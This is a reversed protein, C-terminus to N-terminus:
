LITDRFSQGKSKAEFFQLSSPQLSGLVVQKKHCYYLGSLIQRM